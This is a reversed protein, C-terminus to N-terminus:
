QGMNSNEQAGEPNDGDPNGFEALQDKYPCDRSWHDKGAILIM